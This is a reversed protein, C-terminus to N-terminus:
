CNFWEGCDKEKIYLGQYNDTRKSDLIAKPNIVHSGANLFYLNEFATKKIAARLDIENSILETLGPTREVKFASDLKSHRLNANIM